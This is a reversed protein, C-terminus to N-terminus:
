IYMNTYMYFNVVKMKIKYRTLNVVLQSTQQETILQYLLIVILIIYKYKIPCIFQGKKGVWHTVTLVYMTRFYMHISSIFLSSLTM